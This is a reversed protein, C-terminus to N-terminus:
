NGSVRRDPLAGEWLRISGDESGSMLWRGDASFELSVIAAQHGSLPLVEQGNAACWVKLTRFYCGSVLREGDPSFAVALVHMPHGHLTAREQGTSADWLKLTRDESGSALYRGDASATLCHIAAQHGSLTKCLKCTTADWEQLQGQTSGLFVRQSDSSFCLPGARYELPLRQGQVLLRGSLADRIELAQKNGICALLAGTQDLVCATVGSSDGELANLLQGNASDRRQLPQGEMRVLLWRGDPSFKVARAAPLSVTWATLGTQADVVNVREHSMTVVRSGDPSLSASRIPVPGFNLCRNEQDQTADWLIMKGDQDRSLIRRGDPFFVVGFVWADHGRLTRLPQGTTTDWLRVTRDASGSVLRKSDPSFDINFVNQAHGQIQHRLAGTALHWVRITRDLSCSALYQSDPSIALDTIPQSHGSSMRRVLQGTTADWVIMVEDSAGALYRGDPSCAISMPISPLGTLTLRNKGDDSDLVHVTGAGGYILHRGDPSFRVMGKAPKVPVSLLDHGDVADWVCLLGGASTEEAILIAGRRGDPSFCIRGHGQIKFQQTWLAKRTDAEFVRLKGEPSAIAVRTGDPSIVLANPALQGLGSDWREQNSILLRCLYAYEWHRFREPCADLLLRTSRLDNDRWMHIANALQSGYLAWATREHARGEAEASAHAKAEAGKADRRAAAEAGAKEEARAREWDARLWQSTVLALSLPILVLIVALLGSLAPRRRVWKVVRELQSVPRALIPQGRLFRGLDEALAQATPYRRAPEKHLCKLCVTELDRPVSPILRRPTVPERLLLEALLAMTGSGQIPPVGTLLEYLIAGLSYVDAAPGIEHGRGAAQEPAMYLPTGLVTGTQTIREDGGRADWALGFDTVKPEDDATLLVNDPKLDRHVFCAEHVAAIAEALRLLLTAAETHSLRKGALHQRLSGGEVYEMVYYPVGGWEDVHYVVLLNPHRLAAMARAEVRFRALDEASALAGHLVMKIAVLRRLHQERALYVVGRGGRGLERLVEYGPIEPLTGQLSVLAHLSGNEGLNPPPAARLDRLRPTLVETGDRFWLSPLGVPDTLRALLERCAACAEAHGEIYETDAEPLEGDLFNRLQEHSPCGLM